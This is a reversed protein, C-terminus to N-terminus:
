TMAQSETTIVYIRRIRSVKLHPLLLNIQQQLKLASNRFKGKAIMLQLVPMEILAAKSKRLLAVLQDFSYYSGNGMSVLRLTTAFGQYSDPLGDLTDSVLQSDLIDKDIITLQKKLDKSATLYADMSDSESM